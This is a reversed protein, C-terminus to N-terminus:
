SEVPNDKKNDGSTRKKIEVVLQSAICISSYAGFFVGIIMALSFSRTSEGGLLFIALLAILVTCVTKVSRGMTQWVSKDVMDEFSDKKKMRRENERIRDYIVVTDNISYGFITLIAAIFAADIEWQFLSFLGLTIVIDHLLAIVGSLAYVFRFRFSVYILILVSAVALSKMAGSKLENGIAPQVLQEEVNKMDFSGAQKQIADLLEDRKAQDLADTRVIASTDGDALQVTGTLGVSEMAQNIEEQTVKENFQIDFMSGGKYDISLNLGQTFLSIIGPILLILSLVFWIYRKKVINFYLRHEHKVDDYSAESAAPTVVPATNKLAKKDKYKDAV